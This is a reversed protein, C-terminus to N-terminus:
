LVKLLINTKTYINIRPIVKSKSHQVLNNSFNIKKKGKCVIYFQNMFPYRAM